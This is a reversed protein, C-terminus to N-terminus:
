KVIVSEGESLGSIIETMGDATLGIEVQKYAKLGAEDTYYVVSQGKTTSVASEPVMLVDKRSDLTVIVTGYIREELSLAPSELKLYVYHAEGETKETEELGLEAESVVVADYMEDEVAIEYRDGSKFYNWLKTEARFLSSSADAVTIFREGEVSLDNEDPDRVFTVVGDMTAYIQREDLKTQTEKQRIQTVTLEDQYSQKQMDYMSNTSEIANNLVEEPMDKFMIKQREIALDRNEEVAAIQMKLKTIQESCDELIDETNSLSLQALLQGKEVTDGVKVYIEDYVEGGVAFSLDVTTLPIYNCSVQNTLQMDGRVVEAENFDEQEYKQILPATRFSEEKPLLGCSSLVLIGSMMLMLIKLHKM